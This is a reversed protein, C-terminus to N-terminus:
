VRIFDGQWDKIKLKIEKSSLNKSVAEEILGLIELDSAFRLAIIQSLRLNKEVSYFSSGTLHFYRARMENLIIRNQLKLAYIRALFPILVIVGAVLLDFLSDITGEYKYVSVGLIILTIPTLVFHHFPYYRAHNQYNQKKM